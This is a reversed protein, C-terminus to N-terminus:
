PAGTGAPASCTHTPLSCVLCSGRGTVGEGPPCLGCCLASRQIPAPMGAVNGGGKGGEQLSAPARCSLPAGHRIRGEVGLEGLETPCTEHRSGVLSPLLEATVWTEVGGGTQDRLQM